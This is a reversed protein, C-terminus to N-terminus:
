RGQPEYLKPSQSASQELGSMTRVTRTRRTTKELMLNTLNQADLGLNLNRELLLYDCVELTGIAVVKRAKV